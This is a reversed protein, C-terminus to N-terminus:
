VQQAFMTHYNGYQKYYVGQPSGVKKILPRKDCSFKSDFIDCKKFNKKYLSVKEIFITEIHCKM